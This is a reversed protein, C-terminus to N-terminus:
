LMVALSGFEDEIIFPKMQADLRGCVFIGAERMLRGGFNLRAESDHNGAVYFVKVKAEAMKQLFEDFLDVAEVPPVGRDYIDGAIVVAEAKEEHVLPVLQEMIIARQDATLHLGHFYRGLHWDATHIFRM